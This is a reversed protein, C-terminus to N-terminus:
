LGCTASINTFKPAVATFQRIAMAVLAVVNTASSGAGRDALVGSPLRRQNLM